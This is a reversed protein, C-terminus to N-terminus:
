VSCSRCGNNVAVVVAVGSSCVAVGVAALACARCHGYKKMQVAWGGWHFACAQWTAGFSRDFNRHANPPFISISLEMHISTEM